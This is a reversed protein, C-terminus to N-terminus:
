EYRVVRVDPRLVEVHHPWHQMAVVYPRALKELSAAAVALVSSHFHQMYCSWVVDCPHRLALIIKAHPFLRAILPLLLMNLPNKDVLQVNDGLTVTGAALRWYHERLRECDTADLRQLDGPVHLGRASLSDGLINLFPREDMSQLRPHADLMQEILTTGSRPFGVVFVPSERMEPAPLDPWDARQAADVRDVAAPLIPADEAFRYPVAHKLAEIQGAHAQGVARWAAARDGLKACAAALAFWHAFDGAGRPGAQELRQRAGAPDARRMALTARQHMVENRVADDLDETDAIERLVAEARDLQNARELLGAMQLRAPLDGPHRRLLSELVSMADAGDGQAALLSALERQLLPDLQPWQRWPLLLESAGSDRCELCARAAHIRTRPTAPDLEVARLLVDRASLFDRLQ